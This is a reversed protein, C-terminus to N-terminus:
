IAVLQALLDGHSWVSMMAPYQASQTLDFDGM